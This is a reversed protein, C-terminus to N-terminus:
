ERKEGKNKELQFRRMQKLARVWQERSEGRGGECERTSEYREGGSEM